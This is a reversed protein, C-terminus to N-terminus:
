ACRGRYQRATSYMVDLCAEGEAYGYDCFFLVHVRPTFPKNMSRYTGVSFTVTTPATLESIALRIVDEAGEQSDQTPIAKRVVQVAGFMVLSVVHRRIIARM